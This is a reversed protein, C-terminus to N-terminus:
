LLCCCYAFPLLLLCFAAAIPLLPLCAQSHPLALPRGQRPPAVPQRVEVEGEVEMVLFLGLSAVVAQM